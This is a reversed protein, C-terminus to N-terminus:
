IDAIDGEFEGSGAELLACKWVSGANAAFFEDIGEIIAVRLRRRVHGDSEGPFAGLIGEGM